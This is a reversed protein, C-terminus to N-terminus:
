PSVMIIWVDSVMEIGWHTDRVNVQCSRKYVQFLFALTNDMKPCNGAHWCGRESRVFSRGKPAIGYLRSPTLSTSHRRVPSAVVKALDNVDRFSERFQDPAEPPSPGQATNHRANCHGYIMRHGRFQSTQHIYHSWRRLSECYHSSRPYSLLLLFAFLYNSYIWLFRICIM